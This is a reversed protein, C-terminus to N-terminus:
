KKGEKLEQLKELVDMYARGSSFDTYGELIEELWKEFETLINVLFINKDVIKKNNECQKLYQKQKEHLMQNLKRHEEEDFCHTTGKLTLKLQENEQQIQEIEEQLFRIIQLINNWNSNEIYKRLQKNNMQKIRYFVKTLDDKSEKEFDTLEKKLQESVKLYKDEMESAYKHDAMNIKSNNELTEKLKKNEQQLQEIYNNLISTEKKTLWGYYNFDKIRKLIEQLEESM